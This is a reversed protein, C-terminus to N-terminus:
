PQNIPMQSSLEILLNQFRMILNRAHACMVFVKMLFDIVAELMYDDSGHRVGCLNVIQKKVRRLLM